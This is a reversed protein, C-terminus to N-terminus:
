SSRLYHLLAPLSFSVFKEGKLTDGTGTPEVIEHRSCLCLLVGTSAYGKSFKNNAQSIAALGPCSSNQVWTLGVDNGLVCCLRVEDQDPLDKVWQLYPDPPVFYAKGSM